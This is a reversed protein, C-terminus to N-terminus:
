DNSAPKNKPKRAGGSVDAAGSDTADAKDSNEADAYEALGMKLLYKAYEDSVEASAGNTATLGDETIFSHPAIFKVKKMTLLGGFPGGM